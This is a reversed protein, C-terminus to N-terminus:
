FLRIEVGLLVQLNNLKISAPRFGSNFSDQARYGRNATVFSYTKNLDESSFDYIELKGEASWSEQDEVQNWTRLDALVATENRSERFSYSEEAQPGAIKLLLARGQLFLSIGPSVSLRAGLWGSGGLGLASFQLADSQSWNGYSYKFWDTKWAGNQDIHRGFGWYESNGVWKLEHRVRASYLGAGAGAFLSLSGTLPFSVDAQIRIGALDLFQRLTREANQFSKEMWVLNLSQSSTGDRRFYELGIGLRLRTSLAVLLDAGGGWARRLLQHGGSVSGHEAAAALDRYIEDHSLIDSKLDGSGIGALAGYFRLSLRSRLGSPSTPQPDGGVTIEPFEKLESYATQCTGAALVVCCVLILKRM